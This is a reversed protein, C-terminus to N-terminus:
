HTGGAHAPRLWHACRRLFARGRHAGALTAAPTAIPAVPPVPAVRAAPSRAEDRAHSPFQGGVWTSWPAAWAPLENRKSSHSPIAM